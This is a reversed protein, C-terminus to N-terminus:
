RSTTRIPLATPAAPSLETLVVERLYRAAGGASTTSRARGGSSARAARIHRHVTAPQQGPEACRTPGLRGTDRPCVFRHTLGIRPGRHVGRAPAHGLRRRRLEALFRARAAAGMAARRAPDDTLRVLADALAAPGLAAGARGTGPTVIEPVGGVRTAVVPLGAAMARLLVTPLAGTAARTARRPRRRRAARAPGPRPARVAGPRGARRLGRGAVGALAAAARRRGARGRAAARRAAGRHRRAAARPGPRPADPRAALVVVDGDTSRWRPGAAPARRRTRRSGPDVVGNPELVVTPIPDPSARPVVGAPGALDRDHPDHVAAPRPDARQAQVPRRPRRARERRPAADVGRPHPQADRGGRGVVDAQPLHTHVLEVGSSACCGARHAAVARPDWRAWGWSPSRCASGACRASRPPTPPPRSRWWWCRSVRGPGIEGAGAALDVLGIEPGDPHLTPVLHAIKM